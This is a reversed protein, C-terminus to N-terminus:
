ARDSREAASHNWAVCDDYRVLDGGFLDLASGFTLDVRGGSLEEVSRLDDLHRAGGAYTCPLPCESGLLAVLDRDIGACRGEVEVAHVLFESCCAALRSFLAAGVEAGTLRQWRESTVRWAAGDRRCSLDIVLHAPGIREAMEEVRSLSLEGDVFFWSTVILKAAGADLWERANEPTIGGGLQLGGPWASLASRAAEDNGAGLRIVHGGSLGDERYRHAYWAADQRAVFRTQPQSADDRLSGGVIQKGRGGHLVICPRFLTM